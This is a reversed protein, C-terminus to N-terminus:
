AKAAPSKRAAAPKHSGAEDKDKAESKDEDNKSNKSDKGDQEQEAARRNNLTNRSKEGDEDLGLDKRVHPPLARMHEEHEDVNPDSDTSMRPPIKGQLREIDAELSRDGNAYTTRYEDKVDVHERPKVNDM